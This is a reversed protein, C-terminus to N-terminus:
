GINYPPQHGRASRVKKRRLDNGEDASDKQTKGRGDKDIRAIQEVHEYLADDDTEGVGQLRQTHYVSYIDHPRHEAIYRVDGNDAHEDEDGDGDNEAVLFVSLLLEYRAHENNSDEYIEGQEERFHYYIPPIERCILEIFGGM